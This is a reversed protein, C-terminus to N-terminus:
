LQYSSSASASLPSLDDWDMLTGKKKNRAQNQRECVEKIAKKSMNFYVNISGHVYKVEYCAILAAAIFVGNAIYGIDHEARHKLNYSSNDRNITKIPTMNNKIWYYTEEVAKFNVRLDERENNFNKKRAANREKDPLKNLNNFNSIGWGACTLLPNKEMTLALRQEIPSAAVLDSGGKFGFSLAIVHQANMLAFETKGPYVKL